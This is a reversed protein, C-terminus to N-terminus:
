FIYAPWNRDPNFFSPYLFAGACVISIVVTLRRGLLEQHKVWSLVVLLVEMNSVVIIITKKDLGWM